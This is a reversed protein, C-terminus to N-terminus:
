VQPHARSAVRTPKLRRCEECRAMLEAWSKRRVVRGLRWATFRPLPSRHRFGRRRMERVLEAHRQQVSHVEVLGNAVFGAVSRKRRLTGVLMHLEVHEGLLHQSCMRRPNVM